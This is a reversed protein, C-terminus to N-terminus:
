ILSLRLPTGRQIDKKAKKGLVKPLFKPPLGYGPRICRVNKRTLREGKKVDEVIFLSRRFVINESEIKGANYQVKGVAKEVERISKVLEKLEKPELSFASDPGGDSRRM